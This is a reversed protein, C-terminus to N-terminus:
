QKLFELLSMKVKMHATHTRCTEFEGFQISQCGSVECTTGINDYKKM